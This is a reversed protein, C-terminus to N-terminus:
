MNIKNVYKVLTRLEHNIITKPNLNLNVESLLDDISATPVRREV